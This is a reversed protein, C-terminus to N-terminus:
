AEDMVEDIRAASVPAPTASHPRATYATIPTQGPGSVLTADRLAEIAAPPETTRVAPDQDQAFEDRPANPDRYLKRLPCRPDFADHGRSPQKGADKCNSCIRICECLGRKHTSRTPCKEEHQEDTHGGGCRRCRTFKPDRRPCLSVDHGLKHCRDCQRLIPRSDFRRPKCLQGFMWLPRKVLLPTWKNDPDFVTILVSDETRGKHDKFFWRPAHIFTMGKLHENRLIERQLDMPEHANQLIPVGFLRVNSFGAKPVLEAGIGFPRTLIDQHQVVLSPEPHGAFILVFNCSASMTNTSWRGGLLQLKPTNDPSRNGQITLDRQIAQVIGAPPPPVKTPDPKYKSGKIVTWEANRLQVPRAQPRGTPPSTPKGLLYAEVIASKSKFHGPIPTGFRHKWLAKIETEGAQMLNRRTDNDVTPAVPPSSGRRRRPGPVPSPSPRAPPPPRANGKRAVTVWSYKGAATGTLGPDGLPANPLRTIPRIPPPPPHAHPTPTPEGSSVALPDDPGDGVVNNLPVPAPRSPSYPQFSPAPPDDSRHAPLGIADIFTPSILANPPPHPRFTPARASEPVQRYWEPTWCFGGRTYVGLSQCLSVKFRNLIPASQFGLHLLADRPDTSESVCFMEWQDHFRDIMAEFSPPMALSFPLHVEYLACWLARRNRALIDSEWMRQDELRTDEDYKSAREEAVRQDAAASQGGDSAGDVDADWPGYDNRPDDLTDIRTNITAIAAQLPAIKLEIMDPIRSLFAEMMPGLDNTPPPPVYPPVAPAAPTPAPDAPRSPTTIILPSLPTPTTCPSPRPTDFAPTEDRPLASVAAIQSEAPASPLPKPRHAPTNTRSPRGSVSRQVNKVGAKAAKTANDKLRESEVRLNHKFTGIDRDFAAQISTRDEELDALKRRRFEDVETRTRDVAAKCGVKIKEIEENMLAVRTTEEQQIRDRLLQDQAAVANALTETHRANIEEMRLALDAQAANSHSTVKETMWEGTIQYPPFSSLLSERAADLGVAAQGEIWARFEDDFTLDFPADKLGIMTRVIAKKCYLMYSGSWQELAADLEARRTNFMSERARNVDMGCAKLTAQLKEEPTFPDDTNLCDLCVDFEDYTSLTADSKGLFATLLLLNQRINALITSETGSLLGLVNDDHENTEQSSRIGAVATVLLEDFIHLWLPRLLRGQTDLSLSVSSPGDHGFGSLIHNSVDIVSHGLRRGHEDDPFTLPTVPLREPPPPFLNTLRFPWFRRPVADAECLPLDPVFAM